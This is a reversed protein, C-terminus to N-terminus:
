MRNVLFLAHRSCQLESFPRASERRGRLRPVRNQPRRRMAAEDVRHLGASASPRGGAVILKTNPSKESLVRFAEIMLELRKYTGWKGFALIRHPNGRASFDPLEPRRTLIGHARLHVNDRGYKNNLIQRYGPMLVSVSNSLCSCRRRLPAPRGTCGRTDSGLM